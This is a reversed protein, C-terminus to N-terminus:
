AKITKNKGDQTKAILEIKQENKSVSILKVLYCDPQCLNLSNNYFMENYIEHKGAPTISYIISYRRQSIGDDYDQSFLVFLHFKNLYIQDEKSTWNFHGKNTNQLIKSAENELILNRKETM